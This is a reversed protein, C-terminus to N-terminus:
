PACCTRRRRPLHVLSGGKVPEMVVVPLGHARAAEYCKRSEITPSEWDAYNIQVQVFDMNPHAALVEELVDAKDHISFGLNRILGRGEEACSLGVSRVRRVPRHPGGGPQAASTISTARAPKACPSTSCPARMIPTRRWGRRLKTAIQFSERPYREVLAARLAAESRGGHYGRATDFYTFGADMFLDVMEKVQEIDIEKGGDGEVVPLRM